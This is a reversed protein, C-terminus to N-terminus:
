GQLRIGTKLETLIHYMCADIYIYIYVGVYIHM